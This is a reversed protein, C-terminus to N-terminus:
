SLIDKSYGLDGLVKRLLPLCKNKWHARITQDPIDLGLNQFERYIQALTKPPDELLLKKALIQCNCEPFKNLHCDQLLSEPDEEIYREFKQWIAEIKEKRLNELYADLETITPPEFGKESIQDVLKSPNSDNPNISVDISRERSYQRKDNLYLDKIRWYLYGNVWKELSEYFSLHPRQQFKCISKTIWQLTDNLTELYYLHSSKYLGPLKQVEILLQNVAKRREASNPHNCIKDILQRLEKETM